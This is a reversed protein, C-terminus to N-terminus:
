ATPQLAASLDRGGRLSSGGDVPIVAGTVLSAMSSALVTAMDAVEAARGMRGPPVSDLDAPLLTVGCDTLAHDLQPRSWRLKLPSAVAGLWWPQCPAPDRDTM